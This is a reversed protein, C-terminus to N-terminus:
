VDLQSVAGFGIMVVASALFVIGILMSTMKTGFGLGQEFYAPLWSAGLSLFWQAVFMAGVAGLFTSSRLLRVKSIKPGAEVQNEPDAHHGLPGQRGFIAWLAGLVLGLVGTIVYVSRWGHEAIFWGLTPLAVIGVLAPFAYLLMTPFQRQRDDFWQQLTHQSWPMSPAEAVGLLLRCVIIVALGAFAVPLQLVSWTVLLIALLVRTSYKNGLQSLLATSVTFLIFFGSNILGFAQPSLNFEKMLPVGVLGFISKDLYNVVNIACLFGLAGWAGKATARPTTVATSKDSM